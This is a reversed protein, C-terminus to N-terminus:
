KTIVYFHRELLDFQTEIDMKTLYITKLPSKEKEKEWSLYLEIEKSKELSQKIYKKLEEQSQKVQRAVDGENCGPSLSSEYFFGCGCKLHSGIYYIHPKSFIKTISKDKIELKIVNLKRNKEDWAITELPNDSAIYIEYCM